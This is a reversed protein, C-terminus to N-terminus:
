KKVKRHNVIDILEQYEHLRFLNCIAFFVITGIFVQMPLVIWNSVPLYKLFWVSLAVAMAVCLSPIIDKIQMWSSYNLLKGSYYSNLLYGIANTLIFAWLMPVIGVFAGIFLPALELIKKVIELTLLLGSHGQVALMNMNIAILPYFVGIICLYPLYISAEHWKPGILCYILPESVAGLFFMAVATVFVTMRIIRRYARVMREKDDQINSLVPYTVRQLINTLNSSLLRSFHQGRTYQGLAAPTYFKGIIVQTLEKWITNLLQSAMIKWGFAFLEHFSQSSFCPSPLWRNNIYLLITRLAQQLLLQTVLAWVGFDLFAMAIGIVGSAVSAIMTIKTQTKFDIRKTLRTQQVLALAGIILGLSLVRLLATLEERGFFGAILPACLFIVGYLLLSMGFNVLFVTNYDDDTANKKRILASAFGGNVLATCVVTVITVLGLLGYDDPSLLRALVIGILFQVGHNVVNDM